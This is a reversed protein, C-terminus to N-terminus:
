LADRNLVVQNSVLWRTGRILSDTCGILWHQEWCHNAIYM